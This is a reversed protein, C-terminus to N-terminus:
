ATATVINWLQKPESSSCDDLKVTSSVENLYSVCQGEGASQIQCNTAGLGNGGCAECFIFFNADTVAAPLFSFSDGHNIPFISWQQSLSTDVKTLNSGATSQFFYKVNSNIGSPRCKDVQEPAQRKELAPSANVLSALISAIFITSLKFM